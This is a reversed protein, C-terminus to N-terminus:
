NPWIAVITAMLPYHTLVMNHQNCQDVSVQNISQIHTLRWKTFQEVEALYIYVYMCNVVGLHLLNWVIIM